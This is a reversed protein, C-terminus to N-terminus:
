RDSDVFMAIFRNRRRYYKAMQVRIQERNQKNKKRQEDIYRKIESYDLDKKDDNKDFLGEEKVRGPEM